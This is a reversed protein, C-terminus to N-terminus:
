IMLESGQDSLPKKPDREKPVPQGHQMLYLKM